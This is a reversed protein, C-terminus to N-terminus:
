RGVRERCSAAGLELELRKGPVLGPGQYIQRDPATPDRGRGFGHFVSLLLGTLGEVNQLALEVDVVLHPKIFAVIMKMSREMEQAPGDAPFGRRVATM